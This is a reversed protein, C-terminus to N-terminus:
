CLFFPFNPSLTPWKPGARWGGACFMLLILMMLPCAQSCTNPVEYTDGLTRLQLKWKSGAPVQNYTATFLWQPTQTLRLGCFSGDGASQNETWIPSIGLKFLSDTKKGWKLPCMETYKRVHLLLSPVIINM